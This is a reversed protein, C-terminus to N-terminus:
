SDTPATRFMTICLDPGVQRLDAFEGRWFDDITRAGAGALMALGDDGGALAPALYVVYEDVLGARHFDGAVNAGGEVLLEVVGYDAALESLVAPLAGSVWDYSQMSAGDPATGLVFRRPDLRDAATRAIPADAAEGGTERM